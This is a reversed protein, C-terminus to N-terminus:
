LAMELAEADLGFRRHVLCFSTEVRPTAVEMLRSLPPTHPSVITPQHPLYRSRRHTHIPVIRITPGVPLRRM